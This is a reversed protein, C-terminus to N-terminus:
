FKRPIGEKIEKLCRVLIHKGIDEPLHLRSRGAPASASPRGTSRRRSSFLEPSAELLKEKVELTDLWQGKEDQLPHRDGSGRRSYDMGGPTASLRLSPPLAPPRAPPPGTIITATTATTGPPAPFAEAARSAVLANTVSLYNM